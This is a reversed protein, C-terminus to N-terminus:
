SVPVKRSRIIWHQPNDLMKVIQGIIGDYTKDLRTAETQDLYGCRSALELWVRVEEPPLDFSKIM